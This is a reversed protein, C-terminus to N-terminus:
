KSQLRFKKLNLKRCTDILLTVKKFLAEEDALLLISQEQNISAALKLATKLEKFTVMQNNIYFDGEKNIAIQIEKQLDNSGATDIKPLSINLTNNDKFQM